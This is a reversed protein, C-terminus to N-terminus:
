SRFLGATHCAELFPNRLFNDDSLPSEKARAVEDKYAKLKAGDYDAYNQSENDVKNLWARSGIHEGGCCRSCYRQKINYIADWTETGEPYNESSLELDIDRDTLNGWDDPHLTMTITLFQEFSSYPSFSKRRNGDNDTLRDKDRKNGSNCKHCAPALNRLNVSNFPYKSKPLYHDFAERTPDFQNDLPLLWCFRCLGSDNLRIFKRYFDGLDSSIQQNVIELTWFGGSYLNQFFKKLEQNLSTEPLSAYTTPRCSGQGSCLQDLNNNSLFAQRYEVIEDPHLNQFKLYFANVSHYFTKGAGDKLQDALDLQYFTEMIRHLKENGEFLHLGYDTEPAVCWVEHFITEIFEHMAEMPHNELYRYPRFM